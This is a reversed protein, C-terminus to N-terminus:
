EMAGAEASARAARQADAVHELERRVADFADRVAVYVDEDQKRSVAPERGPMRVRVTVTYPGGKTQRTGHSVAIRVDLIQPHHSELREALDRIRASLAPTRRLRQLTIQISSM